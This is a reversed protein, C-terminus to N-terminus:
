FSLFGSVATRAAANTLETWQSVRYPNGGGFNSLSEDYHFAANGVVTIDNAVVSGCVDGNGNIKVSANPAYVVASLVGNGAIQYDQTGSTATGYIQLNVPNNMTGTTTGGNMIGQGAVKFAGAVYFETTAGAGINLAGSGGKIDVDGSIKFVVTTGAAITYVMNSGGMSSCEIYYKGGQAVATPYDTPFTTNASLAGANTYTVGTPATVADFSASFDTSVYDSNMSGLSTGYPGVRGQSGVSPVAGGTAAYGWIDANQVAVASVAVSISGVSGADNAVGASYKVDDATSATDSNSDWSDVSANNGSFSISDKAVLGNSFKSTKSLQVMIWKEIDAGGGAGLTVTSRAYLTPAVLGTYNDVYVRVQGTANQDFTTGTWKQYAGAGSTTWPSNWATASGAVMQNLSYMAEELGNEALNMAANNYLGRNSIQGTTRGLRIFSVISVGIIASFIMATILLGGRESRSPLSTSLNM